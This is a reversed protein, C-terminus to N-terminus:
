EKITRWGKYDKKGKSGKENYDWHFSGYLNAARSTAHYVLYKWGGHDDPRNAIENLYFDLERQLGEEMELKEEKPLDVPLRQVIFKKGPKHTVLAVPLLEKEGAVEGYLIAMHEKTEDVNGESVSWMKMNGREYDRKM